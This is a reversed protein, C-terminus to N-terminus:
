FLPSTDEKQKPLHNLLLEIRQVRNSGKCRNVIDILCGVSDVCVAFAGHNIKDVLFARQHPKLTSRKGNAKAEIFSGLGSPTCGAWDSFGAETESSSYRGLAKSFTAKSEVRHMSFDNEKFWKKLDKNVEEEPKKNKRTPKKGGLDLQKKCYNEMASKINNSM